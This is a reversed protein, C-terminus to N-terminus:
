WPRTSATRAVAWARLGLRSGRARSRPSDAHGGDAGPHRALLVGAQQATAAPEAIVDAGGPLQPGPDDAGRGRVPLDAVQVDTLGRVGQADGGDDGGLVKGRAQDDGDAQGHATGIEAGVQLRHEGGVHDTVHALREGHHDAVVRVRALVGGFQHIDLDVFQGRDGVGAALLGRRGLEGEAVAIRLGGEAVGPMDHAQLQRDAPVGPHREFRAAQQRHGILGGAAQVDEAHGLDRHEVAVQQRAHEAQVLREDVHVGDVRAAPEPDPALEVGLVEEDGPQGGPEATRDLPGLVAGLVQHRRIMGALLVVADGGREVGVAQDGPQPVVDHM